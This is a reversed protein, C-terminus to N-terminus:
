AHGTHGSVRAAKCYRSPARRTKVSWVSMAQVRPSYLAICPVARAAVRCEHQQQSNAVCGGMQRSSHASISPMCVSTTGQLTPSIAQCPHCQGATATPPTRLHRNGSHKTVTKIAPACRCWLPVAVVIYTILHSIIIQASFSLVRSMSEHIPRMATRRHVTMCM